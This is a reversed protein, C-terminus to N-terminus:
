VGLQQRVLGIESASVAGSRPQGFALAGFDDVDVHEMVARVNQLLGYVAVPTACQLLAPQSLELIALCTQFVVPYGHVFLMDWVRLRHAEPLCDVFLTLFWSVTAPALPAAGGLKGRLHASLQPLRRAVLEELVLQDGQVVAMPSKFMGAPLIGGDLLCRLLSLSDSADLGAGLLGFAIKNMGQCYGVDPNAHAYSYLIYRLCSIDNSDHDDTTATRLLDLDIEEINGCDFPTSSSSSPRM